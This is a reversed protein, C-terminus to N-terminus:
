MGSQSMLFAYDTESLDTPVKVVAVVPEANVHTINPKAGKKASAKEQKNGM